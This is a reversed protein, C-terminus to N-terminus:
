TQAPNVTEENMMTISKNNAYKIIKLKKKVCYQTLHLGDTALDWFTYKLNIKFYSLDGIVKNIEDTKAAKVYKSYPIPVM